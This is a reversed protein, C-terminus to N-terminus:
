RNSYLSTVNNCEMLNEIKRKQQEPLDHMNKYINMLENLVENKKNLEKACFVFDCGTLIFNMLDKERYYHNVLFWLCWDNQPDQNYVEKLMNLYLDSREEKKFDQDHILYIDDNYIEVESRDKHIWSLHEYIPQSWKYEGYKHIKNTGLFNPPGVRVVKSYLDLRDCSINTVNPNLSITKKMEDLTNISFYEDLDPSLCWDTDKPIMALNYNRAVDFRWPTFTKQEIILNEDKEKEKKLLEFTDDNSGTDLIVRYTYQKTYFLWKEVYKSENKCITYACTIM